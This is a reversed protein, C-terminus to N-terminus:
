GCGGAEWALFFSEADAGDVGGDGNVDADGLGSEWAIFFAEVDAGDVGGDLNFDAHCRVVPEASRFVGHGAIGAYLFGDPGLSLAHCSTSPIGDSFSEWTDGNTTSRQIGLDRSGAYITGDPTILLAHGFLSPYADLPQFSAGGDTSRYVGRIRGDNGFFVDGRSNFAVAFQQSTEFGKNQWPGAPAPWRWVGRGESGIYLDGDPARGLFYAPINPPSGFSAWAAGVTPARLVTGANWAVSCLVEGPTETFAFGSVMAAQLGTDLPSWTDGNDTSHYAHGDSVGNIIDYNGAFLEGWPAQALSFIKRGPLRPADWSAGGDTSRFVGAGPTGAFISGNAAVLLRTASFASIGDNTPTWSAGADVSRCVGGDNSGVLIGGDDCGGLTRPVSGNFGSGCPLWQSGGDTSRYLGAQSAVVIASPLVECTNVPSASFPGGVPSWHQGADASSYMGADTCAFLTAVGNVTGSQLRNITLNTLGNNVPSWTPGTRVFVGGGRVGLFTTTGGAINLFAFSRSALNTLGANASTWATGAANL